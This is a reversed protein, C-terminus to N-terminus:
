CSDLILGVLLHQRVPQVSTNAYDYNTLTAPGNARVYIDSDGVGSTQVVQLVAPSQTNLTFTYRNFAGTSVFGTAPVYPQLPAIMNECFTGNYPSPCSCVGNLCTGRNTCSYACASSSATIKFLYSCASFGYIGAYFIGASHTNPVVISTYSATTANAYSFNLLTPIRQFGIYLDCDGNFVGNNQTVEFLLQSGASASYSFYAWQSTLVNGNYNQGAYAVTVPVSCDTGTYGSTCQCTFGQQCM